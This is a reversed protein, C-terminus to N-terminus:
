SGFIEKAAQIIDKDSVQTLPMDKSKVVKRETITFSVRVPTGFVGTVIDELIKRNSIAELREKHFQYYVGLTLTEGDFDMPKAARLLAEISTNRTKIKGLIETWVDESVEKRVVNKQPPDDNTGKKQTNKEGRYEQLWRIIALEFPLQQITSFALDRRAKSLFEILSLTETKSFQKLDTLEFGEKALLVERLREILGEMFIALSEGKKIINEIELLAKKVDGKGLLELFQEIQDSKNLFLFEETFQRKIEKTTLALQELIKVADRFSGDSANAILRFVKDEVKLNEGRAVRELQRQIESSVAKPFVVTTLRSRITAPLKEPNTTALIFIVHEPPEELTKLFANAAETTLMHAEDIIYVKKRSSTPALIVKDRLSRIDDIGRNSAADLEIVDLSAGKTIAICSECENCPELKAKKCNVVKALIRAASTKGTGKPGSFLFAHSISGSKVIKKLTERVNELDLEEITQPRYKLNLTM